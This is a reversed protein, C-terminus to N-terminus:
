LRRKTLIFILNAAEGVEGASKFVQLIGGGVVGVFEHGQPRTPWTALLESAEHFADVGATTRVEVEGVHV